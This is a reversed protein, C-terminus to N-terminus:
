TRGYCVSHAPPKNGASSSPSNNEEVSINEELAQVKELLHLYAIQLRLNAQELQEVRFRLESSGGLMETKVLNTDTDVFYQKGADKQSLKM